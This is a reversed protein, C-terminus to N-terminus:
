FFEQLAGCIAGFLLSFPLQGFFEVLKVFSYEHLGTQVRNVRAPSRAARLEAHRGGTHSQLLLTQLAVLGGEAM